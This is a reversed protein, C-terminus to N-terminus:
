NSSDYSAGTQINVEWDNERDDDGEKAGTQQEVNVEWDKLIVITGIENATM